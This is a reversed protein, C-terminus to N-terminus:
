LPFSTQWAHPRQRPVLPAPLRRPPRPAATQELPKASMVTRLQGMGGGGGGSNGGPSSPGCAWPKRAALAGARRTLAAATPTLPPKGAGEVRSPESPSRQEGPAQAGEVASGEGRGLEVTLAVPRLLRETRGAPWCRPDPPQKTERRGGRGGPELRQGPPLTLTWTMLPAGSSLTPRARLSPDGSGAQREPLGPCLSFSGHQHPCGQGACSGGGPCVAM